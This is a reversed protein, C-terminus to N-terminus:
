QKNYKLLQLNKYQSIKDDPTVFILNYAQAMAIHSRDIPDKHSEINELKEFCTLMDWKASHICSIDMYKIKKRISDMLESGLDDYTDNRKNRKLAMEWLTFFSIYLKNETKELEHRVNSPLHKSQSVFWYFSCTDLLYSKM